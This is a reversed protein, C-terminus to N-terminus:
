VTLSHCFWSQVGARGLVRFSITFIIYVFLCSTFPQCIRSYLFWFIGVRCFILMIFLLFHCVPFCYTFIYELGPITKSIHSSNRYIEFFHEFKNVTSHICIKTVQSLFILRCSQSLDSSHDMYYQCAVINKHM